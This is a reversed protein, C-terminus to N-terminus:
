HAHDIERYVLTPVTDAGVRAVNVQQPPHPQRWHCRRGGWGSALLPPTRSIATADKLATAQSLAEVVPSGSGIPGMREPCLISFQFTPQTVTYNLPTQALVEDRQPARMVSRSFAPCRPGTLVHM